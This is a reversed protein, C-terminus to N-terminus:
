RSWVYCWNWPWCIPSWLWFEFNRQDKWSHFRPFPAGWESERRLRFLPVGGWNFTSGVLVEWDLDQHWTISWLQPWSERRAVGRTASHVKSSLDERFTILYISRRVLDVHECSNLETRGPGTRLRRWRYSKSELSQAGFRHIEPKDIDCWHDPLFGNSRTADLTWFM